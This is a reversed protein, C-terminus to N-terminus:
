RQPALSLGKLIKWAYRKTEEPLQDRHRKVKGTGWNYRWLAEEIDGKSFRQIMRNLYWMGVRANQRLDLLYAAVPLDEKRGPGFSIFDKVSPVGIQTLGFCTNKKSPSRQVVGEMRHMSTSEAWVLRYALERPVGFEDAAEDLVRKTHPDKPPGQYPEKIKLNKPPKDFDRESIWASGMRPSLKPDPFEEQPREVVKVPRRPVDKPSFDVLGRLRDWTNSATDRLEKFEQKLNKALSKATEVVSPPQPGRADPPFEELTPPKELTPPTGSVQAGRSEEKYPDRNTAQYWEGLTKAAGMVAEPLEKAKTVDIFQSEAPIENNVPPRPKPMRDQIEQNTLGQRPAQPSLKNVLSERAKEARFEDFGKSAKLWRVIKQADGITVKSPDSIKVPPKPFGSRAGGLMVWDEAYGNVEDSFRKQDYPLAKGSVLREASEKLDWYRDMMSKQLGYYEKRYERALNRDFSQFGFRELFKSPESIETKIGPAWVAGTGKTEDYFEKMSLNWLARPTGWQAAELWDGKAAAKGARGMAMAFSLPAGMLNDTLSDLEVNGSGIRSGLSMGMVGPVGSILFQALIQDDDQAMRDMLTTKYGKGWVEQALDDLTDTFPLGEIGGVLFMWGLMELAAKKGSAGTRAENYMTEMLHKEFSRFLLGMRAIGSKQFGEAQNIYSFNGHTSDVLGRAMEMAEAENFGQKEFVRKATLFSSMRNFSEMKRIFMGAARATKDFGATAIDQAKERLTLAKGQYALMKDGTIGLIHESFSPDTWGNIRATYLARVDKRSLGQPVPVESAAKEFTVGREMHDRVKRLWGYYLATDKMGAMMERIPAQTHKGLIPVFTQLKDFGVMAGTAVSGGLYYLATMANLRSVWKFQSPQHNTIQNIWDKTRAYVEPNGRWRALEPIATNLFDRRAELMSFDMSDRFLITALDKEYGWVPAKSREKAVDPKRGEALYISDQLKKRIAEQMAEPQLAEAHTQMIEELQTWVEQLEFHPFDQGKNIEPAEVRWGEERYKDALQNISKKSRSRVVEMDGPGGEQDKYARFMWDGQWLHRVYGPRYNLTNGLIQNLKAWRWDFVDRVDQYAKVMEMAEPTTGWEGMLEARHFRRGEKDGQWLKEEVKAKAEPPLDVLSQYGSLGIIRGDPLEMIDEPNGRLMERIRRTPRHVMDAGKLYLDMLGHQQAFGLFNGWKDAFRKGENINRPHMMTLEPYLWGNLMRDEVELSSRLNRTLDPHYAAAKRLRDAYGEIEAQKEPPIDPTEVMQKMLDMQVYINSSSSGTIRQADALPALTHLGVRGSNPMRMLTDLIGVLDETPTRQDRPPILRDEVMKKAVEDLKAGQEEIKIQAAENAQSILPDQDALDELVDKPVEEGAQLKQSVAQAQTAKAEIEAQSEALVGKFDSKKFGAAKYSVKSSKQTGLERVEVSDPYLNLIELLRGDKAQTVRNGTEASLKQLYVDQLMGLGAEIAKNSAFNSTIAELDQLQKAVEKSTPAQLAVDLEIRAAEKPNDLLMSRSTGLPDEPLPQGSPMPAQPIPAKVGAVPEPKAQIPGRAKADRVEPTETAPIDRAPLPTQIVQNILRSTEIDQPSRPISVERGMELDPIRVYPDPTKKTPTTGTLMSMVAAQEIAQDLSGRPDNMIQVPDGASASGVGAGVGLKKPLTEGRLMDLTKGMVWREAAKRAAGAWGEQSLGVAAAWPTGLLFSPIDGVAGLFGAAIREPLPMDGETLEGTQPDRTLAGSRLEWYEAGQQLNQMADQFVKSVLRAKHDPPLMLEDAFLNAVDAVEGSLRSLGMNVNAASQELVNGISQGAGKLFDGVAQVAPQVIPDLRDQIGQTDLEGTTPDTWMNLYGPWLKSRARSDEELEPAVQIPPAVQVPIDPEPLFDEIMHDGVRNGFPRIQQIFKTAGDTAQPQTLATSDLGAPTSRPPEGMYPYPAGEDWLEFLARKLGISEKAM